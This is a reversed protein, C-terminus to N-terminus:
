DAAGRLIRLVRQVLLSLAAPDDLLASLREESGSDRGPVQGIEDAGTTRLFLETLVRVVTGAPDEGRRLGARIAEIATTALDGARADQIEGPDALILPRPEGAGEGPSGGVPTTKRGLPDEVHRRFWDPQRRMVELVRAVDNRVQAITSGRHDGTCAARDGAWSDLPWLTAGVGAPVGVWVLIKLALERLWPDEGLGKALAKTMRPRQLAGAEGRRRRHGDITANLARGALWGELDAIPQTAALLHDVVAELDAHFGDLCSEEMHQLGRGCAGHGRNRAIRRTVVEYVIPYAVEYAAPRLLERETAPLGGLEGRGALDRLRALGIRARDRQIPIKRLPPGANRVGPRSPASPQKETEDGTVM